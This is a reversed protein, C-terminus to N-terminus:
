TFGWDEEYKGVALDKCITIGTTEALLAMSFKQFGAIVTGNLDGTHRYHEKLREAFTRTLIEFYFAHKKIDLKEEDKLEKLLNRIKESIQGFDIHMTKYIIPRISHHFFSANSRLM